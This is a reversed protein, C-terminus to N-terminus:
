PRGDDSELYNDKLYKKEIKIDSYYRDFEKKAKWRLYLVYPVTIIVIFLLAVLFFISVLIGLVIIISALLFIWIKTILNNM